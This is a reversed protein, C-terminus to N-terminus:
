SRTLPSVSLAWFTLRIWKVLCLFAALRSEYHPFFPRSSMRSSSLWTPECTLVCEQESFELSRVIPTLGRRPSAEASKSSSCFSASTHRGNKRLIVFLQQPSPKFSQPASLLIRFFHAPQKLHQLGLQLFTSSRQQCFLPSATIMATIAEAPGAASGAELQWYKPEAM